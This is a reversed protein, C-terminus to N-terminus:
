VEKRLVRWADLAIERQEDVGAVYVSRGAGAASIRLLEGPTVHRARENADRDLTIGCWALGDCIRARVAPAHEGIGGGFVLADAGDLAAMYAGVYKKARYCFAAIALAAQPHGHQAAAQLVQMDGSLGSLGLLGSRENLMRLVEHVDLRERVALYEILSPDLDGSRTGMVLGELPTFGMSTDVSRGAQIATVSCGHGLHATIIHVQDSALGRAAAYARVMSAHALGHFGYRRIEHRGALAYPLAYLAAVDPLSRHFATDFSATMPVSEGVWRRAARIAALAPPNHLPALACLREIEAEVAATLRVPETFRAGGHVIRHGVADPRRDPWADSLWQMAGVLDAVPRGSPRRPASGSECVFRAEDQGIGEVSGAEAITVAAHGGDDVVEAWGFKLSSSGGNLVLVRM